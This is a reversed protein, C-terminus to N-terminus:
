ALLHKRFRQATQRLGPDQALVYTLNGNVEEVELFGLLALDDMETRVLQPSCRIQQAMEQVTLRAEMHRAFYAVIHWRMSDNAFCRIFTLLALDLAEPKSDENSSFCDASTMLTSELM